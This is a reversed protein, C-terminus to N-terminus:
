TLEPGAALAWHVTAAYGNPQVEYTRAIYGNQWLWELINGLYPTRKMGTLECIEKINVPHPAGDIADWVLRARVQWDLKKRKSDVNSGGYALTGIHVYM